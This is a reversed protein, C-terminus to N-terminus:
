KRKRLQFVTLIFITSVFLFVNFSPISTNNNVNSAIPINPYHIYTIMQILYNSEKVIQNYVTGNKSDIQNQITSAKQNEFASLGLSSGSGSRFIIGGICIFPIMGTGYHNYIESQLNNMQEFPQSNNDYLEVPQFDISYSIYTSGIFNYTPIADESSSFYSLNSFNGYQNLAYVIAWREMACYPCFLGGVYIFSVNTSSFVTQGATDKSFGGPLNIINSEPNNATPYTNLISNASVSNVMVGIMGFTISVLAISRFFKHFGIRM